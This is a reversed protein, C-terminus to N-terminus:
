RERNRVFFVDEISKNGDRDSIYDVLTKFAPILFWKLVCFGLSIYSKFNNM